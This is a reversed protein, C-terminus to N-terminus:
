DDALFLYKTYQHHARIVQAVYLTITQSCVHECYPDNLSQILSVVWQRLALLLLLVVKNCIYIYINFWALDNGNVVHKDDRCCSAQHILAMHLPYTVDCYKYSMSWLTQMIDYFMYSMVIFTHFWFSPMIDYFIYSMVISGHCWSAQIIDCHIYSVMISIHCWLALILDYWTTSVVPSTSM